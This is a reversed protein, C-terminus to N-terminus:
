MVNLHLLHYKEYLEQLRDHLTGSCEIELLDCVKKLEKECWDEQMKTEEIHLRRWYDRNEARQRLELIENEFPCSM